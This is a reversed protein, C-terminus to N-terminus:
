SFRAELMEPDKEEMKKKIKEIIIIILTNRANKLRIGMGGSSPDFSIKAIRRRLVSVIIISSCNPKIASKNKMKMKELKKPINKCNINPM